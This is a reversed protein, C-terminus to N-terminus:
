RRFEWVLADQKPGREELHEEKLTTWAPATAAPADVDTRRRPAAAAGGARQRASAAAVHCSCIGVGGDTWEPHIPPHIAGGSGEVLQVHEGRVLRPPRPCSTVILM